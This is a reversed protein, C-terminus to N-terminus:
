GCRTSRVLGLAVVVVVAAAILVARWTTARVQRPPIPRTRARRSRSAPLYHDIDRILAEVSRLAAGSGEADRHSVARRPRGVPQERSARSSGDARQRRAAVSPREPEQEAIAREVEGPTKGDLDFPLRGALLEYLM